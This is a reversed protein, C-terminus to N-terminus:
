RASVRRSGRAGVRGAQRGTHLAVRRRAPRKGPRGQPVQRDPRRSPRTEAVLVVDGVRVVTQPYGGAWMWRRGDADARKAIARLNWLEDTTLSM